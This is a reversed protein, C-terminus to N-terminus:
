SRDDREEPCVCSAGSASRGHCAPRVVTRQLEDDPPCHPLDQGTEPQGEPGLAERFYDTHKILAPFRYGKWVVSQLQPKWMIGSGNGSCSYMSHLGRRKTKFRPRGDKAYIYRELARWVTFGIFKAENFGILNTKGSAKRHNAAMDGLGFENLGYKKQIRKLEANRDSVKKILFANKWEASQRMHTLRGLAQGLTANYITRGFEFAM